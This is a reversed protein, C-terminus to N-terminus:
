TLWAWPKVKASLCVLRPSARESRAVIGKGAIEWSARRAVWRTSPRLPDGGIVSVVIRAMLASEALAPDFGLDCAAIRRVAGREPAVARDGLGGEGPDLLSLRSGTRWSQRTADASAKRATPQESLRAPDRTQWLQSRAIGRQDRRRRKRKRRATRRLKGAAREAEVSREFVRTRPRRVRLPPAGSM